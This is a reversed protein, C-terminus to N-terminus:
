SVEAVSVRNYGAQGLIAKMKLADALTANDVRLTVSQVRTEVVTSNTIWVDALTITNGAQTRFVYYSYKTHDRPIEAALYSAVKAATLDINDQAIALVYSLEGLLEANEFSQGLFAPAITDFNYFSGRKFTSM